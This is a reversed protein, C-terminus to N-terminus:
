YLGGTKSNNKLLQTCPIEKKEWKETLRWTTTSSTLGKWVAHLQIMSQKFWEALKQCLISQHGLHHLMGSM